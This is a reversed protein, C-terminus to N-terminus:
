WFLGFGGGAERQQLRERDTRAGRVDGEAGEGWRERRRRRGIRCRRGATDIDARAFGIRIKGERRHDESQAVIRAPAVGPTKQTHAARSGGERDRGWPPTKRAQGQLRQPRRRSSSPSSTGEGQEEFRRGKSRDERRLLLRDQRAKPPISLRQRRQRFQDGRGGRREGLTETHEERCRRCRRRHCEFEGPEGGGIGCGHETGGSTRRRRGDDSAGVSVRRYGSPLLLSM